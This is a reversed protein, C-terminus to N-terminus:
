SSAQIAEAISDLGAVVAAIAILLVGVTLLRGSTDLDKLAKAFETTKDIVDIIKGQDGIEAPEPTEPPEVQRYKWAIWVGILITVAGVLLCVWGIAEALDDM